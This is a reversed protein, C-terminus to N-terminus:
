CADRLKNAFFFGMTKRCSLAVRGLEWDELCLAVVGSSRDLVIVDTALNDVNHEYFECASTIESGTEDLGGNSWVPSRPCGYRWEDGLLLLTM